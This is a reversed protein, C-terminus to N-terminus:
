ANRVLSGSSSASRASTCSSARRRPAAAARARAPDDAPARRRGAAAARARAPPRVKVRGLNLLTKSAAYTWSSMGSDRKAAGAEGEKGAYFVVERIGSQIILKACESCPFLTCYLIQPGGRGRARPRPILPRVEGM